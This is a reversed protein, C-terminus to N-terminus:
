GCICESLQEMRIILLQRITKQRNKSIVIKKLTTLNGVGWLATLVYTGRCSGMVRMIVHIHVCVQKFVKVFGHSGVQTIQHSQGLVGVQLMNKSRPGKPDSPIGEKMVVKRWSIKVFVKSLNLLRCNTTLSGKGASAM